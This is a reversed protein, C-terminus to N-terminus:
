RGRRGFGGPGFGGPGFGPGMGTPRTGDVVATAKATVDATLQTAQDATIRGAQQAATIEAKMADAIATILGDRSKGATADAIQGLTEGAALKTRLDADTTGLYMAATTLSVTIHVGRAGPMKQSPVADALEAAKAPLEAKAADLAANGAATMAAILGDRTKGNETALQALTKGAQAGAMYQERTIGIYALAADILEGGHPGRGIGFGAVIEQVPGPLAAVVSEVELPLASGAVAVDDESWLAAFALGAMLAAGFLSSAAITVVQKTSPTQM